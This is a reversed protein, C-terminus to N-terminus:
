FDATPLNLDALGLHKSVGVALQTDQPVLTVAHRVVCSVRCAVRLM